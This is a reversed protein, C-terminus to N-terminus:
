CELMSESDKSRRMGKWLSRSTEGLRELASSAWLPASDCRCRGEVSARRVAMRLLVTEVVLLTLVLLISPSVESESKQEEFIRFQHILDALHNCPKTWWFSFWYAFQIM